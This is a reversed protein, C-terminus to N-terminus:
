MGIRRARSTFFLRGDKEEEGEQQRPARSALLAILAPKELRREQQRELRFTVPVNKHMM